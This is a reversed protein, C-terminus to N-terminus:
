SKFSNGLRRIAGSKSTDRHAIELPIRPLIHFYINKAANLKQHWCAVLQVWRYSDLAVHVQVFRFTCCLVLSECFLGELLNWWEGASSSGDSFLMFGEMKEVRATEGSSRRRRIPATRPTKSRVRRSKEKKKEKKKRASTVVVSPSHFVSNKLIDEFKRQAPDKQSLSLSRRRRRSSTSAIVRLKPTAPTCTTVVVHQEKNKEAAARAASRSSFLVVTCFLIKQLYVVVVVVVVVVVSWVVVLWWLRQSRLSTARRLSQDLSEVKESRAIWQFLLVHHSYQPFYQVYLLRYQFCFHWLDTLFSFSYRGFYALM